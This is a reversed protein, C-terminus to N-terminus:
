PLRPILGKGFYDGHTKEGVVARGVVGQLILHVVWLLRNHKDFRRTSIHVVPRKVVGYRAVRAARSALESDEFAAVREDFGGIRSFLERSIFMCTGTAYPYRILSSLELGVNHLLYVLGDFLRVSLAHYGKDGPTYRPINYVTGSQLRRTRIQRELSELFEPEVFVDSDLFVIWDGTAALAGANRGVAPMGGPVVACGHSMALERTRDTSAADAVIVEHPPLTQGRLARLLKPLVREENKAPIVVSLRLTRKMNNRIV